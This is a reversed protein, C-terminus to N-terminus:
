EVIRSRMVLNRFDYIDAVDIKGDNNVDANTNKRDYDDLFRDYDNPGMRRDGDADYRIIFDDVIQYEVWADWADASEEINLEGDDDYDFGTEAANMQTQWFEREQRRAARQEQESVEGDNDTDMRAQEEAQRQAEQQELHADLAAQEEENLVGDGDLDFRAMERQGEPTQEYSSRMFAQWEDRSMDGDGDLDHEKIFEKRLRYGMAVKELDSLMGDGNADFEDMRAIVADMMGLMGRMRTRSSAPMEMGTASDFFVKAPSPTVPMSFLDLGDDQPEPESSVPQVMAPEKSSQIYMVAGITGAAVAFTFILSATKINM